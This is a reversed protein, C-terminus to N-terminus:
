QQKEGIMNTHQENTTINRQNQIIHSQKGWIHSRVPLITDTLESWVDQVGGGTMPRRGHSKTNALKKQETHWNGESAGGGEQDVEKMAGIHRYRKENKTKTNRNM